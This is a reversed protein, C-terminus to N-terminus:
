PRPNRGVTPAVAGAAGAGRVLALKAGARAALDDTRDAEEAPLAALADLVEVLQKALPALDRSGARLVGAALHDRLARLTSPRDGTAAVAALDSHPSESPEVDPPTAGSAPRAAPAAALEWVVRGQQRRTQRRLEPLQGLQRGLVAATAPRSRPPLQEWLVAATLPEARLASVVAKRLAAQLPKRGDARRKDPPTGGPTGM